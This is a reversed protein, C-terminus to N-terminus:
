IYNSIMEWQAANYHRGVVFVLWRCLIRSIFSFFRDGNSKMKVDIFNVLMVNTILRLVLCGKNKVCLIYIQMM